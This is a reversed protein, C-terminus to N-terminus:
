RVLSFCLPLADGVAIAVGGVTGARRVRELLTGPRAIDMGARGLVHHGAERTKETRLGLLCVHCKSRCGVTTFLVNSWGGQILRWELV